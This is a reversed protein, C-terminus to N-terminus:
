KNKLLKFVDNADQTITRNLQPSWTSTKGDCPRGYKDTFVQELLKWNPHGKARSSFYFALAGNSRKWRIRDSYEGEEEGIVGEKLLIPFEKEFAPFYFFASALKKWYPKKSYDNVDVPIKKTTDLPKEKIPTAVSAEQTAPSSPAENAVTVPSIVDAEQPTIKGTLRDLLPYLSNALLKGARLGLDRIEILTFLISRLFEWKMAKKGFVKEANKTYSEDKWEVGYLLKDKSILKWCEPKFDSNPKLLFFQPIKREKLVMDVVFPLSIGDILKILRKYDRDMCTLFNDYRVKCDELTALILNKDGKGELIMDYYRGIEKEDSNIDEITADTATYYKGKGINNENGDIRIEEKEEFDRITTSFM